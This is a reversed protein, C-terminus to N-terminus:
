RLRLYYLSGTATRIVLRDPEIVYERATPLMEFYKEEFPRYNPCAMEGHAFDRVMITGNSANYLGSYQNCPGSGEIRRPLFMLTTLTGPPPNFTQNDVVISQLKWRSGALMTDATPPPTSGPEVREYQLTVGTSTAIRLVNEGAFYQVAKRLHHLYRREIASDACPLEPSELKSFRLYTGDSEYVGGYRSCAGLGVFATENTFLISIGHEPFVGDVRGGEAITRLRWEKGTIPANRPRDNSPVYKVYHLAGHETTIQLTTDTSRYTAARRLHEYHHEDVDCPDASTKEISSVTLAVSDHTYQGSFSGCKGRGTFSREDVFSVTILITTDLEDIVGSEEFSVLRWLKGVIPVSRRVTDGPTITARVYNLVVSGGNAYLRLSSETALYSEVATLSAEYRTQLAGNICSADGPVLSSITMSANDVSYSGSHRSCPGIGTFTAEGFQLTIQAGPEIQESQGNSVISELRWLVNRFEISNGPAPPLNDQCSTAVLALTALLLLTLIRHM